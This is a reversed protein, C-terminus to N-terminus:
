GNPAAPRRQRGQLRAGLSELEDISLRDNAFHEAASHREREDTLSVIPRQEPPRSSSSM